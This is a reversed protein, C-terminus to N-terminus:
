NICTYKSINKLAAEQLEFITEGIKLGRICGNITPYTSMDGPVGGVYVHIGEPPQEVPRDPKVM